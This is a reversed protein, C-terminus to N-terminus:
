ASDQNIKEHDIRQIAAVVRQITSKSYNLGFNESEQGLRDLFYVVGLADSWQVSFRDLCYRINEGHNKFATALTELWLTGSESWELELAFSVSDLEVIGDFRVCDLDILRLNGYRDRMINRSHFDGHCLGTHYEGHLLYRQVVVKMRTAVVTGFLQKVQGLGAHLQPYLELTAGGSKLGARNLRRRIEVACRVHESTAVKEYRDAILCTLVSCRLLFFSPTCDSIAAGIRNMRQANVYEVIVTSRRSTAVKAVVRDSLILVAGYGSSFQLPMSIKRMTLLAPVAVM